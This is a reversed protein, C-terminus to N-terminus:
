LWTMLPPSGSVMGKVMQLLQEDQGMDATGQASQHLAAELQPTNSGCCQALAM